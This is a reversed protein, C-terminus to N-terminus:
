YAVVLEILETEHTFQIPVRMNAISPATTSASVLYTNSNGGYTAITFPWKIYNSYAWSSAFEAASM